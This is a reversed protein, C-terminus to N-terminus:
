EGAGEDRMGCDACWLAEGDRTAGDDGLPSGCYPCRLGAEDPAATTLSSNRDYAEIAAIAVAVVQVMENRYSALDGTLLAQCAEGVEETLIVVWWEPPHNQIGWKADQMLREEEVEGRVDM